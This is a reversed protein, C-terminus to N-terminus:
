PDQRWGQLVNRLQPPMCGRQVSSCFWLRNLLSSTSFVLSDARAVAVRYELELLANSALTRYKFLAVTGTGRELFLDEMANRFGYQTEKQERRCSSRPHYRHQLPVVCSHDFSALLPSTSKHIFSATKLTWFHTVRKPPGRLQVFFVGSVSTDERPLGEACTTSRMGGAGQIHQQLKMVSLLKSCRRDQRQESLHIAGGSFDQTIIMNDVIGGVGPAIHQGWGWDVQWYEGARAVTGLGFPGRRPKALRQNPLRARM